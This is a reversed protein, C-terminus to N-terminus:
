GPDFEEAGLVDGQVIPCPCVAVLHAPREWFPLNTQGVWVAFELEGDIGAFHHHASNDDPEGMGDGALVAASIDAAPVQGRGHM